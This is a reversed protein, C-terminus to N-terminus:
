GECSLCTEGDAIQKFDISEIIKREIGQSVKDAKRIKDTKCYYLSKLGQKWAAFHVAHVYKVHATPKLFINISQSQDLHHQRDGALEIIWRQDIEPATKFVLKEKDTLFPLSQVSGEDAIISKWADDIKDADKLHATLLAALYRNKNLFSGSLTDQRYANRFFPEVSPSTNQMIISSTANPAIATTHSFRRNFGRCDPCDGRSVALQTNAEQVKEYIHKAINKNIIKSMVGEFPIMNKQLYAHYGLQGIGIDRGMKASYKARKMFSPASEIFHEIVNDLMEAVDAIFLKDNAWEDFYEVNLSSLCCVATRYKNVPITIETCLNSMRCRLEEFQDKYYAKGIKTKLIASQLSNPKKSVKLWDGLLSNVTDIFLIYPEGRGTSMRLDILKAWLDRASVVEVVKKSHPDILPWSDDCNEDYMSKEILKMFADPINVGHNMNMCRINPDGTVKRIELFQMIDPHSIDLYAAFSGRRTRGQKYAISISDYEKLHPMVGTSLEDKSRIGFGIGVGGGAMSLRKVEAATEVLSNATDDIWSLFCSIPQGNRSRGFSLIPTSYSLWHKSSYDYLRQAHAENSAFAKSIYAFREQPSVEGDKFYSEQLRKLGLEDFLSDRSLDTVVNFSKLKEEVSWKWSPTFVKRIKSLM